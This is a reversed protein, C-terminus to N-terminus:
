LRRRLGEIVEADQLRLTPTTDVEISGDAAGPEEEAKERGVHRSIGERSWASKADALIKM